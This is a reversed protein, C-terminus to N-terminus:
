LTKAYLAKGLSGISFHRQAKGSSFFFSLFFFRIPFLRTSSCSYTILLMIHLVNALVLQYDTQGTTSSYSATFNELESSERFVIIRSKTTKLGSDLTPARQALTALCHDTRSKHIQLRQNSSAFQPSGCFLCLVNRFRNL